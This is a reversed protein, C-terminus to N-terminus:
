GGTQYFARGSTKNEEERWENKEPKNTVAQLLAQRIGERDGKEMAEKADVADEFYLCPIIKGDSSIRM